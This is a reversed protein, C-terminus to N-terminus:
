LIKQCYIVDFIVGQKRGIGSLCGCELYGNNRHFRLSGENLSSVTALISTLGMERAGAELHALLLKGIGRGTYGPKLFSTLEATSSFVPLLSFPRLISFGIVRESADRATLAPYGWSLQTFSEFMEYSLPTETYTSFSNETYANFIDIIEEADRAEVPKLTINM